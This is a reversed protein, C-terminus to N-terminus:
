RASTPTSASSGGEETRRESVKMWRGDGLQYEYPSGPDRHLAPRRTRWAEAGGPGFAVLDGAIVKDCLEGFSVGERVADEYPHYLRRFYSNCLILRDHRDYLAFGESV